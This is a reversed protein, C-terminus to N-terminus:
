RWSLQNLSNPNNIAVELQSTPFSDVVIIEGAINMRIHQYSLLVYTKPSESRLLGSLSSNLILQQWLEKSTLVPRSQSANLLDIYKGDSSPICREALESTLALSCIKDIDRYGLKWNVIFKVRLNEKGHALVDFQTIEPPMGSKIIQQIKNIVSRQEQERSQQDKPNLETDEQLKAIKKDADQMLTVARIKNRAADSLAHDIWSSTQELKREYTTIATEVRQNIASLGQQNTKDHNILRFLEQQKESLEFLVDNVSTNESMLSILNRQKSEDVDVVLDVQYSISNGDIEIHSKHESVIKTVVAATVRIDQMSQKNGNMLSLRKQADVFLCAQESVDILARNRTINYADETLMSKPAIYSASASFLEAQCLNSVIALVFTSAIRTLINM